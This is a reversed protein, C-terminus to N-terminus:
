PAIFSLRSGVAGGAVSALNHLLVFRGGVHVGDAWGGGVRAYDVQGNNFWLGDCWYGNVSTGGSATKPIYGQDTMTADTVINGSTGGAAINSDVYGAATYVDSDSPTPYPATMKTKIRGSAIVMGAMRDWYNGYFDEIYFVKVSSTQNTYGFFQGKDKLTGPTIGASNGSACRGWGFAEQSNDSKSILTLLDNIFDWRSKVITFWGDGKANSPVNLNGKGNNAEARTVETAATQSVMVGQGAISRLVNSINSGKYMSYYFEDREEGAANMHAYAKYHENIKVRSCKVTNGSRYFYLKKFASMANGGYATSTIDSAAGSVAKKTQDDRDLEYDVTGNYNLMVPRNIETCFAEWSGYIFAGANYNMYAREFDKCDDTYTIINGASNQTRTFGYIFGVAANYIKGTELVDVTVKNVAEVGDVSCSITYKDAVTVLIDASGNSDSIETFVAGNAGVAVIEANAETSVHISSYFYTLSIRYQKVEDVILNISDTKGNNTAEIHWASYGQVDFEAVGNEDAVANYTMDGTNATIASGPETTIIIRPKLGFEKTQPEAVGAENIMVVQGAAGTIKKQAGIFEPTYDNKNPLVVGQRGNFSTVGGGAANQAQESWYKANNVDENERTGTGGVAWSESNRAQEIVYEASKEANDASVSANNMCKASIDACASAKDYSEAAAAASKQADGITEKIEDIEAQLQEAKSPTIDETEGEGWEAKLVLFYATEAFVAVYEAGTENDILCGKITLGAEGSYKKAEAPIPVRYTNGNGDVDMLPTVTVTVSEGMSNIWCVTKTTNEWLESFHCEIETEDHSGAAGISVGAGEIYEDAINLQVIKKM